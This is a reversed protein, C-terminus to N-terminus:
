TDRWIERNATKDWHESSGVVTEDISDEVNWQCQQVATKEDIIEYM